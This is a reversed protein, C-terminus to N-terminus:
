ISIGTYSRNSAPDFQRVALSLDFAGTVVISEEIKKPLPKIQVYQEGTTAYKGVLDHPIPIM